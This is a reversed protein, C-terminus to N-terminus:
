SITREAVQHIRDVEYVEFDVTVGLYQFRNEILRHYLEASKDDFNNGWLTLKRLSNNDELAHGLAMLGHQGINNCRLTLVEVSTNRGM